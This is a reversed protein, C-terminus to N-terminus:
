GTQPESTRKTRREQNLLVVHHGDIYAILEGSCRNLYVYMDVPM